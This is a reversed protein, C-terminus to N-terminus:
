FNFSVGLQFNISPFGAEEMPYEEIRGSSILANLNNQNGGENFAETSVYTIPFTYGIAVQFFGSVGKAPAIEIGPGIFIGGTVKTEEAMDKSVDIDYQSKVYSSGATWNFTDQVGDDWDEGSSIDYYNIAYEAVGKVETRKSYSVFPKAFGYISIKSNDKVPILNLKLNLALSILSIDGGEFQFALGEYYQFGDDDVYPGGIFANKFGEATVEPDYNFKVFSISPGISFVRNLRQVYGAEVNFGVSYDGINKGLTFSPGFGLFINKSRDIRERKVITGEDQAFAVFSCVVLIFALSTFKTM